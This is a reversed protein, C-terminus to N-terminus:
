NKELPYGKERWVDIGGDLWRVNTFGLGELDLKLTKSLGCHSHCYTIVPTSRSIDKMARDLAIKASPAQPVVGQRFLELEKYYNIDRPLKATSLRERGYEDKMRADLILFTTGQTQEARLEDPRVTGPEAGRATTALVASAEKYSVFKDKAFLSPSSFVLAAIAAIAIKKQSLPGAM